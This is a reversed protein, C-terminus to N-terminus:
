LRDVLQVRPNELPQLFRLDVDGQRLAIDVHSRSGDASQGAPSGPVAARVVDTRRMVGHSKGQGRATGDGSGDEARRLWHTKWRSATRWRISTAPEQGTLHRLIRVVHAHCNEIFLKFKLQTGGAATGAVYLGPVNTEM